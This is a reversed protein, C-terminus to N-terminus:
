ASAACEAKYIDNHCCVCVCTAPRQELNGRTLDERLLGTTCSQGRCSGEQWSERGEGVWRDVDAAAVAEPTRLGAKYLLRARSGKVGPLEALAVIEPRVGFWVRAQFKAILAELDSWHLRECFSGVMAAFRATFALCLFFVDICFVPAGDRCM